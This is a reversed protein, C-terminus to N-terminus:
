KRGAIVRVSDAIDKAYFIFPITLAISAITLLGLGSHNQAYDYKDFLLNFAEKSALKRLKTFLFRSIYHNQYCLM